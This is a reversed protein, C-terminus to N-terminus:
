RTPKSFLARLQADPASRCSKQGRRRSWEERPLGRPVAVFESDCTKPFLSTEIGTWEHESCSDRPALTGPLQNPSQRSFGCAASRAPSVACLCLCLCLCPCPCLLAVEM